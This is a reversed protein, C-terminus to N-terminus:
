FPPSKMSIEIGRIEILPVHAIKHWEEGSEKKCREVLLPCYGIYLCRLNAFRQTAERSPFSRLNRCLQIMLSQLSTFNGLWEPLVELGDFDLINLSKLATLHEINPLCTLNAWGILTLSELSIFPSHKPPHHNIDMDITSYPGRTWPWPFEPLHESFPGIELQQLSTLCLLGKEFFSELRPCREIVLRKLSPMSLLEDCELSPCGRIHLEVLTPQLLGKPFCRLKECNYIYLKELFTLNRLQKPLIRLEKLGWIQLTRLSRSSKALFDEMFPINESNKDVVMVLSYKSYRMQYWAHPSSGIEIRQMQISLIQSPITILQPCESILLEKLCPFVRIESTSAAPSSLVDSLEELKRMNRLSLKRLAPFVVVGSGAGSNSGVIGEDLGYFEPGICKLNDWGTMEFVKLHPLRGLTPVKECAVCNKLKIEVLNQFQSDVSTMWSSFQQGGFDELILGKLNEHPQLGELVDTHNMQSRELGFQFVFEQMDKKGLINAKKAEERDKVLMLNRVLLRGSLQNLSGLEEIKHGIDEGVVFLPLTRLSTLHGMKRPTMIDPNGYLHRLSVM